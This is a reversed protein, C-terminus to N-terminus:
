MCGNVKYGDVTMLLSGATVQATDARFRSARMSLTRITNCVAMYRKLNCHFPLGSSKVDDASFLTTLTKLVFICRHPPM